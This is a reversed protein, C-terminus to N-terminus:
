TEASSLLNHCPGLNMWEGEQRRLGCQMQGIEEAELCQVSTDQWMAGSGQALEGLQGRADLCTRQAGRWIHVSQVHGDVRIHFAPQCGVTFRLSRRGKGVCRARILVGLEHEGGGCTGGHSPTGRGEDRHPSNQPGDLVDMGDM